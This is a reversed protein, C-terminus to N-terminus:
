QLKLEDALDYDQSNRDASASVQTFLGQRSNLGAVVAARPADVRMVSENLRGAESLRQECLHLLTQIISTSQHQM